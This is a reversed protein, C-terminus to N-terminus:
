GVRREDVQDEVAVIGKILASVRAAKARAEDDQRRQEDRRAKPSIALHVVQKEAALVDLTPGHDQVAAGLTDVTPLGAAREKVALKFEKGRRGSYVAGERDHPHFVGAEEAFSLEGASQILVGGQIFPAHLVIVHEAALARGHLEFRRGDVRVQGKQVARTTRDALALTAAELSWTVPDREHRRARYAENPSLGGLAEQPENNYADVMTLIVQEAAAPSADLPAIEQGQNASKARMRNGGGYGPLLSVSGQEFRGFWGEIQGKGRANHPKSRIVPARDGREAALRMPEMLADRFAYEKGNDVHLFDPSGWDPHQLLRAFSANVDAKRVAEGKACTKPDAWVRGTAKDMFAILKICYAAEGDERRTRLDMHHVDGLLGEMPKLLRPNSSSHPSRNYFESADTNMTNVIRNERHAEALRRPIEFIERSNKGTPIFGVEACWKRLQRGADRAIRGAGANAHQGCWMAALLKDIRAHLAFGDEISRGSTTWADTFIRSIAVRPAGKNSPTKRMLAVAGAKEVKTLDRRVSDIHRGTTVAIVALAAVRAPTRPRHLLAEELAAQYDYQGRVATTQSPASNANRLAESLSRLSVEYAKGSHGRRGECVRVELRQGRWEIQDELAARM